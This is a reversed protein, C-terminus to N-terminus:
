FAMKTRVRKQDGKEIELKLATGYADRAETAHNLSKEVDGIREWVAANQADLRSAARLQELAADPQNARIFVEALATRAAIYEPLANVILRYQEIAAANEGRRSLLEALGIRSETHNADAQLNQQWLAIAETQRDRTGALLVALNHRAHLLATDKVLADRYYKEAEANKGESAKLAGLANLPDGSAPMLAAAKLFSAEADKRRNMKMYLEGLDYPLFGYQPTVKMAAQFTRVAALNDGAQQYTLALGLLPYSWNPARKAADRFAPAAQQYKAQELYAIGLGNYGYAEGPDSRVSQELLDAAQTYQKDFLLSRGSFFSDRAQLYISEPTLRSAAEMYRAGNEFDAKVQPTQGGSLYRLLVQQAQNELAVRLTNEQLLLMEPSLEGRLRDVYNWASGPDTPLIHQAQIAARYADIDAQAQASIQLTGAAQAFLLPEGSQSDFYTKERALPIGAKSLDSLKTANEMNGFDRPHQKNGTLKSVNDRVYDILEGAEVAQNSNNDAAGELGKLVAYTFAGHGGGFAPGEMSVEKPRAAMLGLMEGQAEGLKEVAGGLSDTKLSGITAARCVDALFVVRGVKSLEDNVLGQLEAMPLATASLDEPDSDYTLIYAGRSDVTGHGAVLIFITDKKGARNRLFTQFANRVAATTAEENTLVVMQEAPVGGGRLSSLHDKFTKADADAYQLWLDQPLKQYKSVGILLAFTKADPAIEAAKLAAQTALSEELEFIRGRVWVADKWQGAVKRYAALANAELKNRDYIAAESVWSSVDNPDAQLANEFPQIEARVNAALAALPVLDGEPKSLGRTMSVGYHQQSAVNVRVLQPLFCSNVPKSASIKGTKVKLQKTDFFLDGGADLTESTKNPCYLFSSAGTEAKLEDGSFIIDGARAALPTESNARLVKSGAAALVLGVPEEKPPGAAAAASSTPAPGNSAASLLSALALTLAVANAMRLPAAAVWGTSHPATRQYREKAPGFLVGAKYSPPGPYPDAAVLGTPYPSYVPGSPVGARDALPKADVRVRADVSTELNMRGGDAVEHNPVSCGITPIAGKRDRSLLLATNM